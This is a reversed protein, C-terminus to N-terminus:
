PTCVLKINFNSFTQHNPTDNYLRVWGDFSSSLQFEYTVKQTGGADYKLEKTESKIGDSREWYYTIKGAASTTISASVKFTYPCQGEVNTHEADYQVSTVAFAPASSGVDIKVWFSKSGDAGLGHLLILSYNMHQSLPSTHILNYHRRNAHHARRKHLLKANRTLTPQNLRNM